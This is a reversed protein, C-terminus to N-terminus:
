QALTPTTPPAASWDALQLGPVHRFDRWNRTVVVAGTALAISAIRLDQTGLRLKSQRMRVFSAASQEDYPLVPIGQYFALTAQLLRLLHPVDAETRTSHFQSLRGQLQEALSIVTVACQELIVQQLYATVEANGRQLLSIHDTDLIYLPTVAM